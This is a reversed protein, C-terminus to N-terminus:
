DSDKLADKILADMDLEGTEIADFVSERNIKSDFDDLKLLIKAIQAASYGHEKLWDQIEPRQHPMSIATTANPYRSNTRDLSHDPRIIILELLTAFRACDPLACAMATPAV